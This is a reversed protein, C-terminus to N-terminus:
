DSHEVAVVPKTVIFHLNPRVDQIIEEPKGKPQIKDRKYKTECYYLIEEPPIMRSVKRTIPVIAQPNIVDLAISLENM